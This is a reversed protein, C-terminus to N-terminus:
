DIAASDTEDNGHQSPKSDGPQIAALGGEWSGNEWQTARAEIEEDSLVYGNSLKYEFMVIPVKRRAKARTKHSISKLM